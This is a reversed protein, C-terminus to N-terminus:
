KGIFSEISAQVVRFYSYIKRNLAARYRVIQIKRFLSVKVTDSDKDLGQEELILERQSQNPDDDTLDYELSGHTQLERKYAHEQEKYFIYNALIIVPMIPGFIEDKMMGSNPDPNVVITPTLKRDVFANANGYIVKGKHEEPNLLDCIRQVSPENIVKGTFTKLNGGQTMQEAYHVVRKLFQDLISQHVIQYDARICM